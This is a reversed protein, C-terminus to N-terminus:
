GSTELQIIAGLYVKLAVMVQGQDQLIGQHQHRLIMLSIGIQVAQQALRMSFGLVVSM